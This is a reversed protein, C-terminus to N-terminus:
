AQATGSFKPFFVWLGGGLIDRYKKLRHIKSCVCSITTSSRKHFESSPLAESRGALPLFPIIVRTLICKKIPFDTLMWWAPLKNM